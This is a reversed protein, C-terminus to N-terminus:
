NGGLNVIGNAPIPARPTLGSLASVLRGALTTNGHIHFDSLHLIQFGDLAAPLDDFDFHLRRIIPNMANKVGRAYLGTAQLAVALLRPVVHGDTWLKVRGKRYTRGMRAFHSEVAIRRQVRDALSREEIFYTM